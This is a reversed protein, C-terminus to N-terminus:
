ADSAEEDAGDSGVAWMAECRRVAAETMILQDHTLILYSNLTQAPMAQINPLNQTGRVLAEDVGDSVVLATREVGLARCLNSMASTKADFEVDSAAVIVGGESARQSLLSRIALRRMRKPLRQRYSRPHPGHAVAGGIRTPSSPTGMRARGGGKQRGTKKSAQRIGSRNLTSSNGQRANARQATVAQHVVALNPEIGFVSDDAEIEGAANGQGDIVPLRM